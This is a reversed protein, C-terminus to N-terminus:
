KAEAVIKFFYDELSSGEYGLESVLYGRKVLESNLQASDGSYGSLTVTKGQVQTQGLSNLYSLASDNINQIVVRIIGAKSGYVALQDRTAVQIIKGKHVFVVRDAINQVEMLIHSSLLVARNKSKLDFVLSRMFHIGEPDLGNLIEDFLLNQPDSILSAALSFRKKMGQSYTRLRRKEFGMLGVSSLLQKVRSEANAGTLGYFGAFYIMLNWVKANLEFNPFEPVWGIGASAAAKDKVIDHGDILVTGSTPLAIGAAVRITTTKGAGNLGVFGVIEGNKVEFNADKLAPAQNRSYSKTLAQVQMLTDIYGGYRGSCM